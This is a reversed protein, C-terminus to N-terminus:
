IERKERMSLSTAWGTYDVMPTKYEVKVWFGKQKVVEVTSGAPITIIEKRRAHPGRRLPTDCYLTETRYEKTASRRALERFLWIALVIIAAIIILREM